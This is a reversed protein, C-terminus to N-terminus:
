YIKVFATINASLKSAKFYDNQLQRSYERVIIPDVQYICIEYQDLINTIDSYSFVTLIQM